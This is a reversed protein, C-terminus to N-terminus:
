TFPKPPAEEVDEGATFMARRQAATVAEGPPRSALRAVEAAEAAKVRRWKTLLVAGM